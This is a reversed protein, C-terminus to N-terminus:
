QIDILMVNVFIVDVFNFTIAGNLVDILIVNARM